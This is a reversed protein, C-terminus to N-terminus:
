HKHTHTHEHADSLTQTVYGVKINIYFLKYRLIHDFVWTDDERNQVTHVPSAQNVPTM